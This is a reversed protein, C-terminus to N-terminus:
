SISYDLIKTMLLVTVVVESVVLRLIYELYKMHLLCLDFLMIHKYQLFVM